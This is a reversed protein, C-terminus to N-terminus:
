LAEQRALDGAGVLEDGDFRAGADLGLLREAAELVANASLGYRDFLYRQTGGVAYTSQLGLRVLSARAGREAMLEAVASGLGGTVLHNELTIVGRAGDLLSEVEAGPAFPSLRTVHAHAVSIGRGALAAVARSAEATVISSSIVVLDDGGALLETTELDRGDEFLVPVDGRMMRCYVPGDVHDVTDLVAAIETADACDMVTMGPLTRMISVDDIAQHTPGGPTTLGPLFGMIRVRARPLAIAMEVQDLPRRTAFVGFTHVIPMLGGRALGGAIGMMNQEAMGCNVFRDPYADRFLDVECSATLDGSLAVADPRRAGYELLATAYPRSVSKV